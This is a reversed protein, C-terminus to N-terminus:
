SEDLEKFLSKTISMHNFCGSDVFWVGDCSKDIPSHVMFLKSEEEVKETFNAHKQEDRQKTWCDAEKHGLKKCHM